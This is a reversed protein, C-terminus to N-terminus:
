FTICSSINQIYNLILIKFDCILKLQVNEVTVTENDVYNDNSHSNQFIFIFRFIIRKFM